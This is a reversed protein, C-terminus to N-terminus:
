VKPLVHATSMLEELEEQEVTHPDPTNEKEQDVANSMTEQLTKTMQTFSDDITNESTKVITEKESDYRPDCAYPSDVIATVHPAGNDPHSTIQDLITGKGNQTLTLLDALRKRDEKSSIDFYHVSVESRIEPRLGKTLTTYDIVPGKWPYTIETNPDTYQSM